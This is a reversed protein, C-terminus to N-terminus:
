LAHVLAGEGIVFAKRRDGAQDNLFEATAIASTYFHKVPVDVDIGAARFRDRLDAPTQSPYNTLFLFPLRDASAVLRAVLEHAGPLADDDQLVVGDIDVILAKV